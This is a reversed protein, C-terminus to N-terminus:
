AGELAELLPDILDFLDIEAGYTAIDFIPADPDMNIAIIMEADAMGEVHEPAGSIGLALYLKPKVSKGSKGVMRATPLWGQDVVPRSACVVGGLLEALEEALELNDETQIGRGVAILVNEASIDVDAAEPEIYQKLSVRPAAISVEFTTVAPSTQAQGQAPKYGGPIVTVLTTVEDSLASEAMIKGGCIQSILNGDTIQVCSSVLPLGLRASLVGAVDSGISTSGFFAARPAEKSLLGALAQTYADSTFEALSSHDGYLVHNAALNSALAQANHGLLVAVVEGGTAQALDRAAALMIYSIDAVQGRLHEVVVFIDQNM